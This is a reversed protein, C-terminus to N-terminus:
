GGILAWLGGETAGVFIEAAAGIYQQYANIKGISIERRANELYGLTFASILTQEVVRAEQLTLGSAIVKMQYGAREPHKPDNQHEVMRRAPDITRGVYKVINDADPDTLVYVHHTRKQTDAKLAAIASIILAATDDALELVIPLVIAGSGGCSCMSTALLDNKIRSPACAACMGSPDSYNVPTNNCYAFM